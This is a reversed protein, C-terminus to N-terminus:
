QIVIKWAKGIPPLSRTLMSDYFALVETGEQLASVDAAAGDKDTLLTDPQLQLVVESPSTETMGMGSVVVSVDGKDNVRVEKVTGATGILDATEAGSVVKISKVFIQPPLSLAMTGNHEVEITMGLGLSEAALTEGEATTIATTEDINLVVGNTGAGNVQIKSVKGDVTRVSTIIGTMQQKEEVVSSSGTESSASSASVTVNEHLVEDVFSAPVYMLGDHLEPAAGLTIYMRNVTYQDVGTQVQTWVNDKSLEVNGDAKWVVKFGLAEATERLPIMLTSDKKYVAGDLKNDEVYVAYAADDATVEDTVEVSPASISIPVIVDSDGAIATVDAAYAAGTGGIATAIAVAAAQKGWRKM